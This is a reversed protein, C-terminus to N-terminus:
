KIFLNLYLMNANLFCNFFCHFHTIGNKRVASCCRLDMPRAGCMFCRRLSKVSESASQFYNEGSVSMPGLSLDRYCLPHDKRVKDLVGDLAGAVGLGDRIYADPLWANCDGLLTKAGTIHNEVESYKWDALVSFHTLELHLWSARCPDEQLEAQKLYRLIAKKVTEQLLSVDKAHMYPKLLTLFTSISYWCLNPEKLKNLVVSVAAKTSAQARRGLDRLLLLHARMACIMNIINGSTLRTDHAAMLTDVDSCLTLLEKFRDEAFDLMRCCHEPDYEAAGTSIDIICMLVLGTSAQLHANLQQLTPGSQGPHPSSSLTVEGPQNFCAKPISAGFKNDLRLLRSLDGPFGAFINNGMVKRYEIEIAALVNSLVDDRPNSHFSSKVLREWLELARCLDKQTPCQHETQFGKLTKSWSPLITPHM